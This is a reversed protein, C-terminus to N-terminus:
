KTKEGKYFGAVARDIGYFDKMIEINEFGNKELLTLVDRSQNKGVEFAMVGGPKLKDSWIKIIKKFYVIGRRGGDLAIKPEFKIENQLFLMDGSAIYPPNAVILDFFNNQYQSVVDFIDANVALIRLGNRNINELLFTFAKKSIEVATVECKAGINKKLALAIAGSGSCLDIIKSNPKTIKLCLNVLTETEERPILVGQGVKLDMDFFNWHGLIYQVPIGELRQKLMEFFREVLARDSVDENGYFVLDLRSLGFVEKFIHLFDTKYDESNPDNLLFKRGLNYLKYLTM